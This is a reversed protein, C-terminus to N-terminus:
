GRGRAPAAAGSPLALLDTVVELLAEPPVFMRAALARQRACLLPIEEPRPLRLDRGRLDLLGPEHALLDLSGEEWYGLISSIGFPVGRLVAESIQNYSGKGVLLQFSGLDDLPGFPEVEAGGPGAPHREADAKWTM